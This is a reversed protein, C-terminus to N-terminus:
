QAPHSPHIITSSHLLTLKPTVQQNKSHCISLVDLSIATNLTFTTCYKSKAMPLLYEIDLSISKNHQCGSFASNYDVNIILTWLSYVCLLFTPLPTIVRKEHTYIKEYKMAYWAHLYLSRWEVVLKVPKIRGNNGFLWAGAIVILPKPNDIGHMGTQLM